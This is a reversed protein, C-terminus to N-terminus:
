GMNLLSGAIVPRLVDEGGGTLSLFTADRGAREVIDHPGLGLLGHIRAAGRAVIQASAAVFLKATAADQRPPRPLRDLQWAARYVLSSALECRTAMDALMARVAQSDALPRAFRHGSRAYAAAQETLARMLGLWPALACSRDLAAVLPVVEYLAADVTGLLADEPVWCRRLVIEGLPCTRMAPQEACPRVHVGPAGADVLFASMRVPSAGDSSVATVLFHHAIPANVVHAKTGDLLWHRGRRAARVALNGPAAAGELELLSMGGVWEGSAIAPLYKQVQADTGLRSIPAACLLGHVGVSLALGADGAEGFGELNATTELASLGGGHRLPLHGRGIGNAALRAFLGPDWHRDRDRAVVSPKVERHGFLRGDSRLRQLNEGYAFEILIRM